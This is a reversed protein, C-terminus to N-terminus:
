PSSSTCTRRESWVTERMQKSFSKVAEMLIKDELDQMIEQRYAIADLDDLRTYYFPKLDYNKWDATIADVIRDLNLDAFFAPAEAIEQTRGGGREEFLISEFTMM